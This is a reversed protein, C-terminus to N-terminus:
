VGVISIPQHEDCRAALWDAIQEFFQAQARANASGESLKAAEVRLSVVLPTRASVPLESVGYRLGSDWGDWASSLHPEVLFFAEERVAIGAGIDGAHGEVFQITDGGVLGTTPEVLLDSM